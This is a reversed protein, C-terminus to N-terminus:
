RPRDTSTPLMLLLCLTTGLGLALVCAAMLRHRYIIDLYPAVSIPKADNM